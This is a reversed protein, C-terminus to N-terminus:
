ASGAKHTRQETDPKPNRSSLSHKVLVFGVHLDTVRFRSSLLGEIM